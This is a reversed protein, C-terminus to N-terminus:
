ISVEFLARGVGRGQAEPVVTVINCFYYGDPDTWVEKQAQAQQEKWRWYRATRLGGRGGFWANVVGQASRRAATASHGLLM